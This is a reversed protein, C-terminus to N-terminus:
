AEWPEVTYVITGEYTGPANEWTALVRFQMGLVRQGAGPSIYVPERTSEPAFSSWQSGAAEELRFWMQSSPLIATGQSFGDAAVRLAHRVNGAVEVRVAKISSLIGDDLREAGGDESTDFDEATFALDDLVRVLLIQPIAVTVSMEARALIKADEAYAPCAGILFALLLYLIIWKRRRMLCGKEIGLKRWQNAIDKKKTEIM